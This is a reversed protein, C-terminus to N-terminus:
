RTPVLVELEGFLADSMATAYESVRDAGGVHVTWIGDRLMHIEATPEVPSSDVDVPPLVCLTGSRVTSCVAGSERLLAAIRTTDAPDVAVAGSTVIDGDTEVDSPGWACRLGDRAAFETRTADDLILDDIGRGADARLRGSGQREVLDSPYSATCSAPIPVVVAQPTSTPTSAPEPTPSTSPSGAADSPASGANMTGGGLLYGGVGSAVIVVAAAIVLLATTLTGRGTGDASM